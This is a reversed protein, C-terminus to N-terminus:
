SSILGSGHGTKMYARNQKRERFPSPKTKTKKKKKKIRVGSPGFSWEWDKKPLGIELIHRLLINWGTVVSGV